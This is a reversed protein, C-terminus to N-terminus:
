DAKPAARTSPGRGARRDALRFWEGVLPLFWPRGEYPVPVRPLELRTLAPAPAGGLWQGVRHGLHTAMAVGTGCYGLSYTVGGLRGVHPMRDMTFAVNGGWAYAVPTTALQPHVAALGRQLIAATRDTSTPIFSARGGFVMRREATLHWYFLFNKTDAFVRGNPSLERCLDEPLVETAIMYSGIPIVRRRLAPLAADTYGNTAAVVDRAIIAGATTEVVLRGDAQRRIHRARVGERLTAGAQEAAVALGAVYKAPHVSACLDHALAGHYADTGIETRLRDRRLVTATVGVSALGDRAAELAAVDGPSAALTLQGREDFECDIADEQILGKITAYADFTEDWLARGLEPGYKAALDGPGWKYGPHVMGGNRGSAGWGITRAELVVTAAGARALTRAASLGTYGGGIVVVDAADPLASRSRDPLPPASAEWYSRLEVGALPDLPRRASRASPGIM